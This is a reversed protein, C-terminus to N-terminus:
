TLSDVCSQTLVTQSGWHHGKFYGLFTPPFKFEYLLCSVSLVQFVMQWNKFCRWFLPTENYVGQMVYTYIHEWLNLITAPIWCKIGNGSGYCILKNWISGEIDYSKWGRQLWRARLAMFSCDCKTGTFWISFACFLKILTPEIFKAIVVGYCCNWPTQNKNRFSYIDGNNFIMSIHLFCNYCGLSIM